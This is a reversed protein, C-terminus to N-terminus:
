NYWMYYHPMTTELFLLLEVLPLDPIFPGSVSLNCLIRLPPLCSLSSFILPFGNLTLPHCHQFPHTHPSLLFPPLLSVSLFSWEGPFGTFVLRPLNPSRTSKPPPQSPPVLFATPYGLFWHCFISLTDCIVTCLRLPLFSFKFIVFSSSLKHPVYSFCISFFFYQIPFGSYRSEFGAKALLQCTMMEPCSLEEGPFSHTLSSSKYAGKWSM